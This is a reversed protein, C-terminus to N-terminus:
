LLTSQSVHGELVYSEDSDKDRGKNCLFLALVIQPEGVPMMEEPFGELVHLDKAAKGESKM